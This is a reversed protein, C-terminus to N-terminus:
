RRYRHLDGNGGVALLGDELLVPGLDVPLRVQLRWAETGDPRIARLTGDAGGLLVLGDFLVVPATVPYRLEALETAAPAATIRYVSGRRTVAYITDGGAAPTDLVPADLTVRWRPQLDHPDIAVVISDTTGAVLLGGHQLWPSVITGPSAARVLVRGDEASLRFLSDVTAVIASGSDGAIAPIRATGLRRQWRVSGSAANLGTVMGRYTGAIVTRGVLALPGAVAGTGTRWLRRGTAADLAYVRGEPRASAAFVTDGAVLVGGLIMGGLRSAWRTQGTALDVAYVKRDVGAGFITGGTVILRGTFRRGARATWVQVPAGSPAEALIPAPAAPAPPAQTCAANVGGLVLAVSLAGQSM